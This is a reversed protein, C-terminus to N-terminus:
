DFTITPATYSPMDEVQYSLDFQDSESYYRVTFIYMHNRLISFYDDSDQEKKFNIYYDTTDDEFNIKIRTHETPMLGTQWNSKCAVNMYEPM